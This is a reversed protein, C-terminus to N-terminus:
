RVAFSARITVVARRVSCNFDSTRPSHLASRPTTEVPIKYWVYSRVIPSSKGPASRYNTARSRYKPAMPGDAALHTPKFLARRTSCTTEVRTLAPSKTGDGGGVARYTKIQCITRLLGVRATTIALDQHVNQSVVGGHCGMAVGAALAGWRGDECTSRTIIVEHTDVTCM